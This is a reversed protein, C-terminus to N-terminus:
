QSVGKPTLPNPPSGSGSRGAAVNVRGGRPRGPPASGPPTPESATPDQPAEARARTYVRVGTGRQNPYPRSTGTVEVGAAALMDLLGTTEAPEGSFRVEVAGDYDATEVRDPTRPRAGRRGTM